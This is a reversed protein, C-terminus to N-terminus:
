YKNLIMPCLLPSSCTLCHSDHASNSSIIIFFGHTPFGLDKVGGQTHVLQDSVRQEGALGLSQVKQLSTGKSWGSGGTSPPTKYVIMGMVTWQRRSCRPPPPNHCHCIQLEFAARGAQSHSQKNDTRVSTLSQRVEHMEKLIKKEM